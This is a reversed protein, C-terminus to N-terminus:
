GDGEPETMDFDDAATWRVYLEGMPTVQEFSVAGDRYLDLVALFRAVVLLTGDADETM